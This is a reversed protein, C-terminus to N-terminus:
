LNEKFVELLMAFITCFASSLALAIILTLNFEAFACIASILIGFLTALGGFVKSSYYMVKSTKKKRELETETLFIEHGDIKKYPSITPKQRQIFNKTQDIIKEDLAIGKFEGDDIMPKKLDLENNYSGRISNPM